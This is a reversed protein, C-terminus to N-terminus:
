GLSQERMKKRFLVHCEASFNFFFIVAPSLLASFPLAIFFWQLSLAFPQDLLLYSKGTVKVALGMVGGVLCVPLLSFLMLALNSFPSFKLRRVVAYLVDVGASSSLAVSPTMLFLIGLCAVSLILSGLLLLFPGFSLIVSLAVGVWPLAKLLYFVGLLGWFILYLLVIPVTLYGVELILDKSLQFIKRYSVAIGKVEHHYVRTLVIGLALLVATSFFTPFFSLTIALWDGTAVSLVLCLAAMLGCAVIVPTAFFLKRRSFTLSLARNFMSEVEKWTM